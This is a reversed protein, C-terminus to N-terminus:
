HAETCIHNSSNQSIGSIQLSSSVEGTASNPKPRLTIENQTLWDPTALPKRQHWKWAVHLNITTPLTLTANSVSILPATIEGNVKCCGTCMKQRKQPCSTAPHTSLYCVVGPRNSNSFVDYIPKAALGAFPGVATRCTEMRIEGVGPQPASTHSTVKKWRLWLGLLDKRHFLGM